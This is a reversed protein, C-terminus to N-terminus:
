PGSHRIQHITRDPPSRRSLSPAPPAGSRSPAVPSTSAMSLRASASSRVTAATRAWAGCWGGIAPDMGRLPSGPAAPAAAPRAVCSPSRASGPAASRRGPPGPAPLGGTLASPARSAVRDSDPEM